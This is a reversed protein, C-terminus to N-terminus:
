LRRLADCECTVGCRVRRTLVSVSTTSFEPKQCPEAVREVVNDNLLSQDDTTDPSQSLSPRVSWRRRRPLTRGRLWENSM